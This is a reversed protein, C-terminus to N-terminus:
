KNRGKWLDTSSGVLISTLVFGVIRFLVILVQYWHPAYEEAEVLNKATFNISSIFQLLSQGLCSLITQQEPLHYYAYMAYFVYINLVLLGFLLFIAFYLIRRSSLGFDTFYNWLYSTFYSLKSRHEIKIRIKNRLRWIKNAETFDDDQKIIHDQCLRLFPILGKRIILCQDKMKKGSYEQPIVRQLLSVKPTRHSLMTIKDAYFGDMELEVPVYKEGDPKKEFLNCSRTEASQLIIVAKQINKPVIDDIRLEGGMHSFSLDINLTKVNKGGRLTNIQCESGVQLNYFSLLFPKEQENQAIPNILRCERVNLSGSVVLNNFNVGHQTQFTVGSIMVTGNSKCHSSDIEDAALFSDNLLIQAGVKSYCLSVNNAIFSTAQYIRVSSDDIPYIYFVQNDNDRIEIREPTSFFAKVQRMEGGVQTILEAIECNRELKPLEFIGFDIGHVEGLTNKDFILRGHNEDLHVNDISVIGCNFYCGKYSLENALEASTFQVCANENVVSVGILCCNIDSVHTCNFSIGGEFKSNSLEVCGNIKASALSFAFDSTNKSRYKSICHKFYVSGECRLGELMIRGYFICNDFVLDQGISSFLQSSVDEGFVIDKSFVCDRFRISKSLTCYQFLVEDTFTEGEFILNEEIDKSRYDM